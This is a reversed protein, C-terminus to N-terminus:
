HKYFVTDPASHHFNMLIHWNKNYFKKSTPDVGTFVMAYISIHSVAYLTITKMPDTPRFGSLLTKVISM